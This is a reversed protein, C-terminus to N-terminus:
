HSAIAEWTFSGSPVDDKFSVTFTSENMASVWFVPPENRFTINVHVPAKYLGHPIRVTRMPYAIEYSGSAKSARGSQTGVNGYIRNKNYQTDLADVDLGAPGYLINDVFQVLQVTKGNPKIELFKSQPNTNWIWNRAMFIDHVNNGELGDDELVISSGSVTNLENDNFWTKNTNKLWLVTKGGSVFWNDYIRNQTAYELRIATDYCRFICNNIFVGGPVIVFPYPRPLDTKQGVWVGDRLNALRCRELRLGDINEGYIGGVTESGLLNLDFFFFDPNLDENVVASSPETVFLWEGNFDPASEIKTVSARTKSDMVGQFCVRAKIRVPETLVYDRASLCIRGGKDGLADVAAQLSPYDDANIVGDVSPQAMLMASFGSCTCVVLLIIGIIHKKM